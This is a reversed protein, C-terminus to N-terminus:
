YTSSRAFGRKDLVKRCKEILVLLCHQASHGKRFGCQLKSFLPQFYENIQDYLCREYIKSVTPLISVPRCNTKLFKEDKKFVPTIDAKKLYKPFENSFVSNNFNHHLIYSCIDSNGKLIKVPIDNQQSAKRSNLNEIETLFKKRDEYKFSFKNSTTEMRKKISVISPHKSFKEICALVPNEQTTKSLHTEDRQTNLNKVISSFFNQFTKAVEIDSSIIENNEVLTIKEKSKIKNSFLPSIRKWFKKNDKVFKTDLSEFYSKKSKKLISVCKNRQRNYAVKTTETRQKLYINRLRAKGDDSRVTPTSIIVKCDPVQESVFKKLNLLQDLIERSTFKKADNTGAHIILHSPKKRILPIVNHRMDEVNAGPFNRVKVVHNRRRLRDEFVGNIISEGAIVITNRPYLDQSSSTHNDKSNSKKSAYFEEKKKKKVEELQDQLSRREKKNQPPEEGDVTNLNVGQTLQESLSESKGISTPSNLDSNSASDVVFSQVPKTLPHSKATTLEKITDLLTKILDEKKKMENKLLEIEKRYVAFTNETPEQNSHQLKIQDKIIGTMKVHLENIISDKLKRLKVENSITDTFIDTQIINNSPRQDRSASFSPTSLFSLCNQTMPLVDTISSNFDNGAIRFSDKNRNLKNIIKDNQILMNIRDDLFTKSIKEFDITKIIEKHVSNRDARKNQGRIRGIVSYICHDLANLESTTTM